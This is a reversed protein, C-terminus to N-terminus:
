RQWPWRRRRRPASYTENTGEQADQAVVARGPPAPLLHSLGAVLMREAQVQERLWDRESRVADLEARLTRMEADYNTPTADYETAKAADYNTPKVDSYTASKRVKAAAIDEVPVALLQPRGTGVVKYQRREVTRRTVGLVEAAQKYTLDPM